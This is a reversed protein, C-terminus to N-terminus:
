RLMEPHSRNDRNWHSLAAESSDTFLFERAISSAHGDCSLVNLKGSHREQIRSLADSKFQINVARALLLTGDTLNEGNGSVGDGLAYMNASSAVHDSPVPRSIGDVVEVGLGFGNTTLSTRSVGRSNLGYCAFGAQIPLFDLNKPASPCYLIGRFMKEGLVPSISASDEGFLTKMWHGKQGAFGDAEYLGEAPYTGYQLVFSSLSISQQHLNGLCVISRSRRTASTVAVLLLAALISIIGVVVLLEILTFAWQSRVRRGTALEARHDGCLSASRESFHQITITKM